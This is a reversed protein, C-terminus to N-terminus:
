RRGQGLPAAGKEVLDDERLFLIDALDGTQDLGARVVQERLADAVDGHEPPQAVGRARRV